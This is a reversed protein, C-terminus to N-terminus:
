ECAESDVPLGHERLLKAAFDRHRQLGLARLHGELKALNVDGM